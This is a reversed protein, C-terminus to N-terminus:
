STVGTRVVGSCRACVTGLSPDGGFDRTYKWCRECKDGDAEYVLIPGDLLDSKFIIAENRVGSRDSKEGFPQWSGPLM